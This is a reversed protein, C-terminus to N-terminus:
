FFGEYKIQFFDWLVTFLLISEILRDTSCLYSSVQSFGEGTNLWDEALHCMEVVRTSDAKFHELEMKPQIRIKETSKCAQHPMHHTILQYSKWIRSYSSNIFVGCYIGIWMVLVHVVWVDVIGSVEDVDLLPLVFRQWINDGDTVMTCLTKLWDGGTKPMAPPMRDKGAGLSLILEIDAGKWRVNIATNCIITNYFGWVPEHKFM